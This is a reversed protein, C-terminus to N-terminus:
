LWPHLQRPEPRKTQLGGQMDDDDAQDRLTHSLRQPRTGEEIIVANRPVDHRDLIAEIEPQKSLDDIEVILKNKDDAIGWSIMNTHSALDAQIVNLWTRLQTFSYQAQLVRLTANARVGYRDEIAKRAEELKEPTQNTDTLYINLFNGDESMFSGGFGPVEAAIDGLVDHHTKNGPDITPAPIRGDSAPIKAWAFGALSVAMFFVAFTIFLRTSM